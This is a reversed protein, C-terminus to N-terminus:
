RVVSTETGKKDNTLLLGAKQLDELLMKKIIQVKSFTFNSMEFTIMDSIHRGSKFKWDKSKEEDPNNRRGHHFIVNKAYEKQHKAAESDIKGFEEKTENSVIESLSSSILISLERYGSGGLRQSTNIDAFGTFILSQYQGLREKIALTESNDM